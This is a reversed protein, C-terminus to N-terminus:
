HLNVWIGAAFGQFKNDTTNYIIAGNEVGVLANRQTTTMTAMTFPSTTIVKIKGVASLYMDSASEVTPTGAGSLNYEEATTTAFVVDDTTNLSQNFPNGTQGEDTGNVWETGNFKLVQGNSPSTITVDTLGDLQIATTLPAASNVWQTGNYYLGQGISPSTITVDTLGDLQSAFTPLQYNVWQTGNYYLVQGGLPTSITVDTLNDLQVPITPLVSNIWQGGTYKLFQGDSPNAITVDTLNDLQVLFAPPPTNVWQTGNFILYEGNSPTTITVDTVSNLQVAPVPLPSNVWQIGNFKLIQDTLVSQLTVDTLDNLSANINVVSTSPNIQLTSGVKIGGLTTTSATPLTYEPKAYLESFNSNIKTGATRLSDGTGDNANTGTNILQQPM